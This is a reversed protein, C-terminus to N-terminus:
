IAKLEGAIIQQAAIDIFGHLLEARTAVICGHNTPWGWVLGTVRAQEPTWPTGAISCEVFRTNWLTSGSFGPPPPLDYSGEIKTALDPKYDVGLHVAADFRSDNTPLPVERAVSSTARTFLTNFAFTSRAGAFGMFVFLEGELCKHAPLIMNKTIAKAKHDTAKWMTSSIPLIAIDAPAPAILHDGTSRYLNGLDHFRHILHGSKKEAAVHENTLIVTRGAIEIYTGSGVLEGHDGHDKSVATVFQALYANMERTVTESAADWEEKTFLLKEETM